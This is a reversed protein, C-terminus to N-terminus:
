FNGKGGGIKDMLKKLKEKDFGGKAKKPAEVAPKYFEELKKFEELSLVGDGNVDLKKFLAELDVKGKTESKDQEKKQDGAWTVGASFLLALVLLCVRRKM